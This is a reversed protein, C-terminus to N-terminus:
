EQIRWDTADDPNREVPRYLTDREVPRFGADRIAKQLDHVTRYQGGTLESIKRLKEKQMAIELMERNADEAEFPATNSFKREALVTKM